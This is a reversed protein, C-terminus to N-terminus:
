VYVIRTMIQFHVVIIKVNREFKVPFKSDKSYRQSTARSPEPTQNDGAKKKEWGGGGERFRIEWSSAKPYPVM